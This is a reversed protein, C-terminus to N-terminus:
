RAALGGPQIPPEDTGDNGRLRSELSESVAAGFFDKRPRQKCCGHHLAAKRNV